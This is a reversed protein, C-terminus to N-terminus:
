LSEEIAKYVTTRPAEINLETIAYVTHPSTVQLVTILIGWKEWKSTLMSPNDQYLYCVTPAVHNYKEFMHLAVICTQSRFYMQLLKQSGSDMLTAIGM